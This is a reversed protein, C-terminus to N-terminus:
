LAFADSRLEAPPSIVRTGYYYLYKFRFRYAKQCLNILNIFSSVVMVVIETKLSQVCFQIYEQNWVKATNQINYTKKQIIGRRRFKIHRRKPVNQEMKM